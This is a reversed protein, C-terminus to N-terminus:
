RDLDLADILTITPKLGKATLAPVFQAADGVIVTSAPAPDFLTRSAGRGRQRVRCGGGDGLAKVFHAM